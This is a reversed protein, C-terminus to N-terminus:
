RAAAYGGMPRARPKDAACVIGGAINGPPIEHLQGGDGPADPGTELM